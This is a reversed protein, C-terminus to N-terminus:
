LIEMKLNLIFVNVQCVTSSNCFKLNEDFLGLIKINNENNNLIRELRILHMKFGFSDSRRSQYENLISYIPNETPINKRHLILSCNNLGSSHLPFFRSLTFIGKENKILYTYKIIHFKFISSLSGNPQFTIFCHHYTLGLYLYIPLWFWAGPLHKIFFFISFVAM